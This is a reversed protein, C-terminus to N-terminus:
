RTHADQANASSGPERATVESVIVGDAVVTRLVEGGAVQDVSRVVHGDAGRTISWGRAMAVAPDLAGVRAAAVDLDAQAARLAAPASTAARHARLGSRAHEADLRRRAAAVVRGARARRREDAVAVAGETRRSVQRARDDLRREHVDLDTGTQVVVGSWATEARLHADRVRAVLAAACATPTKHASHAVDDAVARDIEHGLGTWVPVACSAIARAIREDDFTALDTRSGGGRVIVILELDRRGLAALAAVIGDVAGDGQVTTHVALLHFGIGSAELEHTLDAWAASGVSTVVGVRLPAAALRRRKNADLLGEAVLRRLLQDREAALKGLTYTPDLGDMVLSLRGSPGYFDLRAHIRVALGNELRMRNKALLGRLRALTGAWLAVPITSQGADGRETLNFYVHGNARPQFGQIEGRVWVGDNFGRRLVQKIAEALEGVTFTPDSGDDYDLELSPQSM